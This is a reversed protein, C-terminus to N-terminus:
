ENSGVGEGGGCQVNGNIGGSGNVNISVVKVKFDSYRPCTPSRGIGRQGGGPRRLLGERGGQGGDQSKPIHRDYPLMSIPLRPVLTVLRVRSRHGKPLSPRHPATKRM